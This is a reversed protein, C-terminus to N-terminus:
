RRARARVTARQPQPAILRLVLLSAPILAIATTWILDM